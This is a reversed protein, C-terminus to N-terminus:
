VEILKLNLEVVLHDSAKIGLEVLNGFDRSSGVVIAAIFVGVLLIIQHRNPVQKTYHESGL